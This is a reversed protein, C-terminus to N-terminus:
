AGYRAIKADLRASREPDLLLGPFDRVLEARSPLRGWATLTFAEHARGVHLGLERSQRDFRQRLKSAWEALSATPEIHHRAIWPLWENIQSQHCWSEAAVVDFAPEVDVVLDSPNAGATYSDYTNLIVPTPIWEPRSEDSAPYESLFAHPVNIMYAVRRVAEAVTLHDPHVGALPDFPWAPCFLYDPKFERISKWLAALLDTTLTRCAEEFPEGSPKLLLEWEYHGVAASAAQEAKRMRASEGRPRLDHGSRGDTCILARARFGPPAARRMLEFTGAAVFEFDDFHAHICLVRM